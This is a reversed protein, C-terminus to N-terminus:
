AEDRLRKTLRDDELLEARMESGLVDDLRVLGRRCLGRDLSALRSIPDRRQWREHQSRESFRNRETVELGRGVEDFRDPRDVWLERRLKAPEDTAVLEVAEEVENFAESATTYKRAM